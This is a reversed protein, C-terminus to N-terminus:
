AQWYFQYVLARIKCTCTTKGPVQVTFWSVMFNLNCVTLKQKGQNSDLIQTQVNGKSVFRLHVHISRYKVALFSCYKTSATSQNTKKKIAM